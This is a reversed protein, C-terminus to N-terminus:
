ANEFDGPAVKQLMPLIAHLLKNQTVFVQTVVHSPIHHYAEGFHILAGAPVSQVRRADLIIFVEHHVDELIQQM